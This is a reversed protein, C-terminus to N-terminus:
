IVLILRSMRYIKCLKAVSHSEDSREPLSLLEINGREERKEKLVSIQIIAEDVPLQAALRAECPERKQREPELACYCLIYSM